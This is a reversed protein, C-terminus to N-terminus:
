ARAEHRYFALRGWGCRALAGPSSFVVGSAQECHLVGGGDVGVWIGVHTPFRSHALLVADGEVPSDVEAWRVREPHGIFARTVAALHAADVEIVPVSLGFREAWVRRCFSWCDNAGAVWPQGIYDAAWHTAGSM